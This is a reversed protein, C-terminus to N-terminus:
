TSAQWAQTNAVACDGPHLHDREKALKDYGKQRSQVKALHGDVFRMVHAARERCQNVYDRPLFRFEPQVNYVPLPEAERGFMLLYPSVGTSAHRSTRYAYLLMPLGNEWDQRCDVYTRLMQM